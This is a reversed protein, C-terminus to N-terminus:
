HAARYRQALPGSNSKIGSTEEFGKRSQKKKKKMYSKRLQSFVRLVSSQHLSGSTLQILAGEAEPKNSLHCSYRAVSTFFCPGKCKWPYKSTGGLFCTRLNALFLKWQAIM